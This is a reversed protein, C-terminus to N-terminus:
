PKEISSELSRLFEPQSSLLKGSFQWGDNLRILKILLHNWGQRLKLPSSRVKTVPQSGETPNQLIPNGNLWAQAGGNTLVELNVTPLNPELLLDELSRHSSIWCSFYVFENKDTQKKGEALEYSGNPAFRPTWRRGDIESGDKISASKNFDVNTKKMADPLSGEEFNGAALVHVLQGDSFANGADGDQNLPLGLNYLMKRVARQIKLLRSQVPFSTVMLEGKGVQKSILINSAPQSERESRLIMATKAYEPQKNWKLWDTHSGQLVIDSQRQLPGSLGLTFVEAPSQESFYFDAIRMGDVIMNENKILLSSAPRRTLELPAPLFANLKGLSASDAGWFIVKGGNELVKAVDSKSKLDPPHIGDIILVDPNKKNQELTLLGIDQLQKELYSGPGGIIQFSRPTPNSAKNKLAVTKAKAWKSPKLSDASADRIAEFLPWTRYLPLSPDYGPNLTTTYPGLREPQVGEQGDKFYTFYVGDKLQPARSTDRLGLELPQLGYWVLNFVSRYAANRQRQAILSQYSSVAVGEMRGLFSEYARDGNTAAVQEPTGYYANGSEGVGWPKTSKQGRDMSQFGGYHVIYVPLRGEGDDEGDASIWPRSPDLKRCTDAWIRYHDVLIDKMGPPNHMVGRVIPMIENSVSWGFVAPHNRDRLVLEGIHDESDKWYAPDDLKPGGDSAWMATEDLVMIGMEDAMDLYFSPYPEAHLRVANLNADKLAKYWAWAYRRTMQPIGMFHWSDGKLVLPQGNLLFEKGRLSVQRWGFRTYKRDISKGNVKASIVMGYLNPSAPSWLHLRGDVNAELTITRSGNAPVFFESGHMEMVPKEELRGKPVPADATSHGADNIWKYVSADLKVKVANKGANYFTVKTALLNSDVRPQIYVNAISAQPCTVLEVDQWIGAIHQGWFSGAQYTRRGHEGRHDFLSAKRIGVNIENEQGYKVLSTVDLDFPLFIGFHSGAAVGNIMIQADGAVAEFHLVVRKGQWNAPVQFKRSLWGMKVSEWSKPYSPYTVFDGGLGNKDAFNNVNWPSPIRIPMTKGASQSFAPLAPAPDIGEKFGEPLAVPSFAWKGNLCINQRFPLESPNTFNESPAFQADYHLRAQSFAMQFTMTFLSTLGLLKKIYM